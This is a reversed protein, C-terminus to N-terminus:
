KHNSAAYKHASLVLGAIEAYPIYDEISDGDRTFVKFRLTETSPATTIKSINEFVENPINAATHEDYFQVGFLKIGRETSIEIADLILPNGDVLVSFTRFFHWSDSHTNKVYIQYRIAGTKRNVFARVFSDGTESSGNEVFYGVSFKSTDIIVDPKFPDSDVSVSAAALEPTAEFAKKIRQGALAPSSFIVSVIATFFIITRM